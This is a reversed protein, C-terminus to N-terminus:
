VMRFGCKKVEMSGRTEIKIGIQSLENAECYNLLKIDEEEYYQPHLYFLWIHDSLSVIVELIDINTSIVKGNVICQCSCSISFKLLSSFVICVVIGIWEGIKEKINVEAGMSQHIFWKSIVSGPTIM